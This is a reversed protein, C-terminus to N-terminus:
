ARGCKSAPKSPVRPDAGLLCAVGQDARQRMCLVRVTQVAASGRAIGWGGFDLLDGSADVCGQWAAAWQGAHCAPAAKVPSATAPLFPPLDCGGAHCDAAFGKIETPPQGCCRSRPRPVTLAATATVPECAHGSPNPHLGPAWSCHTQSPHMHTLRSRNGWRLTANTGSAGEDQWPRVHM